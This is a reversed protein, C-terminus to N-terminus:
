VSHPRFAFPVQRFEEGIVVGSLPSAGTLVSVLFPVLGTNRLLFFGEARDCYVIPWSDPAGETYWAFMNVDGYYGVPFLGPKDPHIAYPVSRVGGAWDEYYGFM